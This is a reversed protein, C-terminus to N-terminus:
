IKVSSTWSTTTRGLESWDFGATQVFLDRTLYGRERAAARLVDLAEEVLLPEDGTVLYCSLLKQGLRSELQNAPLKM